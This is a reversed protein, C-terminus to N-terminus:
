DEPALRRYRRNLYVLPRLEEAGLTRADVATVTGVILLSDNVALRDRIEARLWGSSGALVPEGTALVDHGGEIFREAGRTAFRTAVESHADDLFNVVVSGARVLARGSTSGASVAFAVTPPEASMRATM